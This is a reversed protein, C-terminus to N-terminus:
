TTATACVVPSSLPGQTPTAAWRTITITKNQCPSDAKQKVSKLMVFCSTIYTSVILWPDLRERVRYLTCGEELPTRPLDLSFRYKRRRPVFQKGWHFLRDVKQMWIGWKCTGSRVVTSVPHYYTPSPVFPWPGGWTKSFPGQYCRSRLGKIPALEM